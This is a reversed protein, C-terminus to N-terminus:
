MLRLCRRLENVGGILLLLDGEVFVDTPGPRLVSRGLGEIGILTAGSREELWRTMRSRTKLWRLQVLRQGGPLDLLIRVQDALVTGAIVQGGIMPQLAVFDAGARYLREVAGPHNARAVIKLTPNLNRAMLITFINVADDNVAAILLHAEEIGSRKLVHEDEANGIVTPVDRELPDIVTCNVGRATLERYAAAGVDGFGAIVASRDGSGRARLEHEIVAELDPVRGVLFLMASSDVVEDPGPLLKFAGARWLVLPVVHYTEFLSLEGITRDIAPSGRLIPAKILWLMQEHRPRHDASVTDADSHLGAPPVFGYRALMQGTSHKPSLVYEAGAYRLYRDFAPDDVVAIVEARTRGRLALITNAAAREEGVVVVYRANEISAANQTSALVPDGWLVQAQWRYRRYAQMAAAENEAIIVVSRDAIQLSEILSRVTEDFGIIVIHDELARATRRPPTDRVFRYLYPTLILPVVMFIMVVGTTMIVISFLSTLENEFPLLEGYGVTTLTQMVFQLSEVWTTPKGELIPYFHHFLGTYVAVIAGFLLLYVKVRQTSVLQVFSRLWRVMERLM